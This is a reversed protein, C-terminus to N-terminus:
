KILQFINFRLLQKLISITFLRMRIESILWDEGSKTGTFISKFIIRKPKKNIKNFSQWLISAWCDVSFDVIPFGCTLQIIELM